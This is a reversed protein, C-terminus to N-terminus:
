DWMQQQDWEGQKELRYAMGSKSAATRGQLNWKIKANRANHYPLKQTTVKGETTPLM